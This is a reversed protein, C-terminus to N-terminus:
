PCCMNEFTNLKRIENRGREEADIEMNFRSDMRKDSHTEEGHQQVPRWHDTLGDLLSGLIDQGFIEHTPLTSGGQSVRRGM